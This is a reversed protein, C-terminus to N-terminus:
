PSTHASSAESKPQSTKLTEDWTQRWKIVNAWYSGSPLPERKLEASLPPISPAPIAPPSDAPPMSSCAALMWGMVCLLLLKAANKLSLM